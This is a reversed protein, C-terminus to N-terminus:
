KDIWEYITYGNPHKTEVREMMSELASKLETYFPVKYYDMGLVEHFFQDLTEYSAAQLRTSFNIIETATLM